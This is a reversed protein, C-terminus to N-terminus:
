GAWDAVQGAVANAAQNLAAGVAAAEAPIGPVVNEFRRTELAGGGRQRTVDIRVVASGTRADYGMDILRSSLREGVVGPDGEVVPRGGKARLTEAILHQILHTPREVWMADKLYAVSSDSVQVPVRTVALRLEATPELVAIATTDRGGALNGAPATRAPTLDLLVKPVKGGFSICGSLALMLLPVAFRVPKM